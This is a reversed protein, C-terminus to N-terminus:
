VTMLVLELLPINGLQDLDTCPPYCEGKMAQYDLHLMLRHLEKELGRVSMPLPLHSCTM